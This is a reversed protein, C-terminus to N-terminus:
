RFASAIDRVIRPIISPTFVHNGSLIHVVALLAVVLLFVNRTISSAFGGVILIGSLWALALGAACGLITLPWGVRLVVDFGFRTGTRYVVLSMVLLCVLGQLLRGAEKGAQAAGLLAATVVLLDISPLLLSAVPSATSFGPCNLLLDILLVGAALGATSRARQM